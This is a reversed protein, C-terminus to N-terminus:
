NWYNSDVINGISKEVCFEEVDTVTYDIDKYEVNYFDENVRGQLFLKDNM